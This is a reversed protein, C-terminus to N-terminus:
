HREANIVFLSYTVAAALYTAATITDCFSFSLYSNHVLGGLPGRNNIRVTRSLNSAGLPIGCKSLFAWSRSIIIRDPPTYSYRKPSRMLPIFLISVTTGVKQM